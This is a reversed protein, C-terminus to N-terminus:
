DLLFNAKREIPKVTKVSRGLRKWVRALLAKGGAKGQEKAIVLEPVSPTKPTDCLTSNLTNQYALSPIDSSASSYGSDLTDSRKFPVTSAGPTDPNTIFYERTPASGVLLSECSSLPSLSALYFRSKTADASEFTESATSVPTPPPACPFSESPSVPRSIATAFVFPEYYDHRHTSDRTNPVLASLSTFRTTRQM